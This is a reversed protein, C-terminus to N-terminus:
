DPLSIEILRRCGNFACTGLSKVTDPIKIASLNEYNTFSYDGIETVPLGEIADPIIVSTVTKRDGICKLIKIGSNTKLYKIKANEVALYKTNRAIYVVEALHPNKNIQEETLGRIEKLKECGIFAGDDIETSPAITLCELKTCYAFAKKHIRRVSAPITIATLRGCFSFANEGISTVGDPIIVSKLKIKDKFDM